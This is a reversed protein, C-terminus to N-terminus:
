RRPPEDDPPTALPTPDLRDDLRDPGVSGEIRKAAFYKRPHREDSLRRARLETLGRALLDEVRDIAAYLDPDEDRVNVEHRAPLHARVHCGFRDERRSLEYLQIELTEVDGPAHHEAVRVLKEARSRIADSLDLHRATLYVHM